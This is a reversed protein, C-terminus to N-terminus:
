KSWTKYSHCELCNKLGNPNTGRHYEGRFEKQHCGLCTPAFQTNLYRVSGSKNDHCSDCKNLGKHTTLSNYILKAPLNGNPNHSFKRDFLAPAWKDQTHCISCEANAQLTHTLPKASAAAGNHCSLCQTDEPLHKYANPIWNITTHCEICTLKTKLHSNTKYKLGKAQPNHCSECTESAETKLHNFKSFDSWKKDPNFSHCQNCNLINRSGLNHSGNQPLSSNVANKHCETCDQRDISHKRQDFILHSWTKKSTDTSTAFSHCLVCDLKNFNLNKSPHNAVPKPADNKHCQICTLPNSNQHDFKKIQETWNQYSGHCAFCDTSKMGDTKPSNIHSSPRNTDHCTNCSQPNPSHTTQNFIIDKWSKQSASYQHCAICDIKNYKASPHNEKPTPRSDRAATMHCQNCSRITSNHSFNILNLWNRSGNKSIEARHCEICNLSDGHAPITHPRLNEHCEVCSAHEFPGHDFKKIATQDKTIQPAVPKFDSVKCSQVLSILSILLTILITKM